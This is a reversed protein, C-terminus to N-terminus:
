LQVISLQLWFVLDIHPIDRPSCFIRSIVHSIENGAKLNTGDLRVRFTMRRLRVTRRMVRGMRLVFRGWRGKWSIGGRWRGVLGVVEMLVRAVCVVVKMPLTELFLEWGGLDEGGVDGRSWFMFAAEWVVVKKLM